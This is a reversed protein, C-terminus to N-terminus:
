KEKLDALVAIYSILADLRRYQEACTEEVLQELTDASAETRNTVPMAAIRTVVANDMAQSILAVADGIAKPLSESQIQQQLADRHYLAVRYIFKAASQVSPTRKGPIICIDDRLADKYPKELLVNDNLFCDVGAIYKAKGLIQCVAAEDMEEYAVPYFTYGDLGVNHCEKILLELYPALNNFLYITAGLPIRALALFFTTIPHLDFCVLQEDPIVTTLAEVQTGACVYLVGTDAQKVDSTRAISFNLSSPFLNKCISRIEEAIFLSSGVCVVSLPRIM